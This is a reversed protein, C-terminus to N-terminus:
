EKSEATTASAAPTAAPTTPITSGCILDEATPTDAFPTPEGQGQTVGSLGAAALIEALSGKGYGPLPTLGLKKRASERPAGLLGDDVIQQYSKTVGEPSIGREVGLNKLIRMTDAMGIRSHCLEQCTYCEVCKFAEASAVVEDLKGAVIDRIMDNPRFTPDVKAVPCDDKCARCADCKNLIAVDYYQSIETRYEAARDWKAMFTDTSVKHGAMGFEEPAHGYTLALIEALHFVPLNFAEQQRAMVAQNLDFQLFCSPCPVVLADVQNLTLENLKRRTFALSSDRAGVRDLASGCCVMKSPYDVVKAGLATLLDEIKTPKLPDDWKIAPQPRVIHCGYHVAIRLGALPRKVHSAVSGIGVVDAVYEAFHYVNLTGKYKMGVNALQENVWDRTHWDTTLHSQTEKFTSYCGNCPTILDLGEQEVLALNRAAALHFAEVSNAKALTGEPCCTFGGLDQIPTGLDDFVLRTAKEIFPLRAPITCGWFAAYGASM